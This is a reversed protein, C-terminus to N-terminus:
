AVVFNSNVDFVITSSTLIYVTFFNCYRYNRSAFHNFSPLSVLKYLWLYYNSYNGFTEIFSM